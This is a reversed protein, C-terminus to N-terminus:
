FVRLSVKQLIDSSSGGEKTAGWGTTVCETGPDVLEMEKPLAVPEVMDNFTITPVVRILGVDNTFTEGDFHEHIVLEGAIIVQEDGSNKNLDYEGFM